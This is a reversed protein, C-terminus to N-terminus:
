DPIEHRFRDLATTLDPRGGPHGVTAAAAAVALRAAQRPNQGRTLAATLAAVFADGAGTTDRIETDVHPIVCHEDDWVFVNGGATALAVLSPGRGLLARGARLAAQTSDLAEGTLIEGERQDVRLVDAAALLAARREDDAPAGDLVVRRGSDRALRAAALAAASPQQLQIVVSAASSVAAAASRVDAETLLVAAPIHELYRWKGDTTVLDVILASATSVRRIVPGTNIRDSKAQDLLHDGVQDDGVVGLLAVPVDLQALAVAINAGKGGLMELRTRVTATGGSDPVDAVVLVLDRAVQGIVVVGNGPLNPQDM